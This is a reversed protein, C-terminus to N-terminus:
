DPPAAIANGESARFVLRRAMAATAPIMVSKQSSPREANKAFFDATDLAVFVDAFLAEVRPKGSERVVADALVHRSAMMRERLVKLWASRETVPLKAWNTQVARSLSVIYPLHAPLTKPFYALIEGTAPNLSPLAGVPIATAAM